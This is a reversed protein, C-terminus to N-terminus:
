GGPCATGDQLDLFRDPRHSLWTWFKLFSRLFLARLKFGIEDHVWNGAQFGGQGFSNEESRGEM